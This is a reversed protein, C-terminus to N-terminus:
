IHILSLTLADFDEREAAPYRLLLYGIQRQIGAQFLDGLDDRGGADALQLMKVLVPTEPTRSKEYGAIARLSLKLRAAFVTQSERLVQERLEKIAKRLEM